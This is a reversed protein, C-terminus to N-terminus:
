TCLGIRNKTEKALAHRRSTVMRLHLGHPSRCGIGRRAHWSWRQEPKDCDEKSYAEALGQASRLKTNRKGQKWRGKLAAKGQRGTVQRVLAQLYGM